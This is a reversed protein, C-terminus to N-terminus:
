ALRTISTPPTFSTGTYLARNPTFRVAKLATRHTIGSTALVLGSEDIPPLDYAFIIPDYYAWGHSLGIIGNCNAPSVIVPSSTNVPTVDGDWGFASVPASAVLLGNSYAYFTADKLVLACHNFVQTQGNSLLTYSIPDYGNGYGSRGTYYEGAWLPPIIGETGPKIAPFIEIGANYFDIGELAAVGSGAYWYIVGYPLTIAAGMNEYIGSQPQLSGPRLIAEFTFAQSNLSPSPLSENNLQETSVISLGSLQTFPRRDHESGLIWSGDEISPLADYLSAGYPDDVFDAIADVAYNSKYDGASKALPYGQLSYGNWTFPLEQYPQPLLLWGESPRANVAGSLQPLPKRKFPATVPSTPVGQVSGQTGTRVSRIRNEGGTAGSGAVLEQSRNAVLKQGNKELVFQRQAQRQVRDRQLLLERDVRVNIETSM